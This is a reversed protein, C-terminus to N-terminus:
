SGGHSFLSEEAARLGGGCWRPCRRHAQVPDSDFDMPPFRFGFGDLNSVM